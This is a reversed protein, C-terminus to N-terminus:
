FRSIMIIFHFTTTSLPFNALLLAADKHVPFTCCYAHFSHKPVVHVNQSWYHSYQVAWSNVPAPSMGSPLERSEQLALGLHPRPAVAVTTWPPDGHACRPQVGPYSLHQQPGVSLVQFVVPIQSLKADMKNMKFYRTHLVMKREWLFSMFM